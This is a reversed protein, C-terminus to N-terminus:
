VQHKANERHRSVIQVGGSTLLFSIEVLLIDPVFPKKNNCTKKKVKPTSYHDTRTILCNIQNKM